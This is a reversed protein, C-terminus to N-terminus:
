SALTPWATCKLLLSVELEKEETVLRVLEAQARERKLRLLELREQRDRATASLHSFQALERVMTVALCAM